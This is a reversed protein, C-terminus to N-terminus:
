RSGQYARSFGQNPATAPCLFMSLDLASIKIPAPLSLFGSPHLVFVRFPVPCLFRSLSSVKWSFVLCCCYNQLSIDSMWSCWFHYFTFQWRGSILKEACSRRPLRHGRSPVGPQSQVGHRPDAKFHSKEAVSKGWPQSHNASHRVPLVECLVDM